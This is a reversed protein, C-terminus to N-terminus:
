ERKGSLEAIAARAEAALASRSSPGLGATAIPRGLRLELRRPAVIRADPPLAEATGRLGAPVVPVRAKLALLIAGRQFPLLRDPPGYTEEPFVLVSRGARLLDLSAAVVAGATRRRRRDVAVFGMARMARGLFPVDFLDDRSWVAIRLRPPLGAMVVPIDLASQHNAVVVCSGDPIAESGRVELRCGSAALCIRAWLRGLGLARDRGPWCAALGGLVVTAKVAVLWAFGSRLAGIIRM